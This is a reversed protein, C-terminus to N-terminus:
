ADEEVEVIEMYDIKECPVFIHGKSNVKTQTQRYSPYGDNVIEEGIPKNFNVFRDTVDPYTETFYYGRRYEGQREVPKYKITYKITTKYM